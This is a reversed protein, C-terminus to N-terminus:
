PRSPLPLRQEMCRLIEMHNPVSVGHLKASAVLTGTIFAIETVHNAQYDQQMSNFNDATIHLVQEITASLEKTSMPFGLTTLAESTEEILPPLWRQAEENTLLEGNKCNLLATLPNVCANIALKHWLTQQIDSTWSVALDCSLLTEIEKSHQLPTKDGDGLRMQGFGAHIVHSPAPRYSGHTSCGLAVHTAPALAARAIAEAGIGNQMLLVVAADNIHANIPLLANHVQNAKVCVILHAISETVAEAAIAHMRLPITDADRQYFGDLEGTHQRTIVQVEHGQQQLAHTWLLGQAGAGLIHWKM